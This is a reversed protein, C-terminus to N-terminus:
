VRSLVGKLQPKKNTHYNQVKFLMKHYKQFLFRVNTNKCFEGEVDKKTQLKFRIQEEEDASLDVTWEFKVILVEGKHTWSVRSSVLEM